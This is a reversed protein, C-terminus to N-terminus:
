YRLTLRSLLFLLVAAYVGALIDDAVIGVGGPLRELQRVPPPKLIDFLRFLIFATIVTAWNIAAAGAFTIWQGVVEDVVVIGPDKKGVARATVDAAWIAPATVVIGLACIAWPPWAAWHALAWAILVAALSGATGPGAPAYGCGFWTAIWRALRTSV